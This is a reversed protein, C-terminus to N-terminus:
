PTGQPRMNSDSMWRINLWRWRQQLSSWGLCRNDDYRVNISSVPLPSRHLNGSSLNNVRNSRNIFMVRLRRFTVCYVTMAFPERVFSCVLPQLFKNCRLQRLTPKGLGAANRGTNQISPNLVFIFDEPKSSVFEVLMQLNRFPSKGLPWGHLKLQPFGEIRPACPSPFHRLPPHQRCGAGQHCNM